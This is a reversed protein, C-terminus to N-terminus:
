LTPLFIQLDYVQHSSLMLSRSFHTVIFLWINLIPLQSSCIREWLLCTFSWYVCQLRTQVLFWCTFTVPLGAPLEGAVLVATVSSLLFSQCLGTLASGEETVLPVWGCHMKEPVLWATGQFKFTSNCYEGATKSGPVSSVDCLLKDLFSPTTTYKKIILM